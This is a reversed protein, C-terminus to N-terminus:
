LFKRSQKFLEPLPKRPQSAIFIQREQLYEPAYERNEIIGLFEAKNFSKRIEEKRIGVTIVYEIKGPNNELYEKGWLYYNNHPCLVKPVAFDETYLELAGALDASQELRHMEGTKGFSLRIPKETARRSVENQKSHYPM